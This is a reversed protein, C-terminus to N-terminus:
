CERHPHLFRWIPTVHVPMFIGAVTNQCTERSIAYFVNSMAFTCYFIFYYGIIASFIANGANKLVPIYRGTEYASTGVGM